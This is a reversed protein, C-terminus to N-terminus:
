FKGLTIATMWKEEKGKLPPMRRKSTIRGEDTETPIRFVEGEEKGELEGEKTLREQVLVSTELGGVVEARGRGGALGRRGRSTTQTLGQKRHCEKGWWVKLPTLCDRGTGTVRSTNGLSEDADTETEEQMVHRHSGGTMMALMTIPHHGGTTFSRTQVDSIHLSATMQSLLHDERAKPTCTKGSTTGTNKLIRELTTVGTRRAGM